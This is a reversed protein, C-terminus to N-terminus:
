INKQFIALIFYEQLKENFILIAFSNKTSRDIVVKVVNLPFFKISFLYFQMSFDYQDIMKRM